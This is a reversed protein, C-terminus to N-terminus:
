YLDHKRRSWNGDPLNNQAREDDSQDDQNMEITKQTWRGPAGKEVDAWIYCFDMILNDLRTGIIQDYFSWMTLLETFSFSDAFSQFTDLDEPMNRHNPEPLQLHFQEGAKVTDNLKYCFRLFSRGVDKQPNSWSYGCSNMWPTLGHNFFDLMAEETTTETATDRYYAPQSKWQQFSLM